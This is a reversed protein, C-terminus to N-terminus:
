PLVQNEKDLQPLHFPHTIQLSTLFRLVDKELVNEKVKQKEKVDLKKPKASPKASPKTNADKRANEVMVLKLFIKSGTKLDKLM